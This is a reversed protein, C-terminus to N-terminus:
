LSYYLLKILTLFLEGGFRQLNNILFHKAEHVPIATVPNLQCSILLTICYFCVLLCNRPLTYINGVLKQLWPISYACM